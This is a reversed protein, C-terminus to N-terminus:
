SPGIVVFLNTSNGVEISFIANEEFALTLTVFLFCEFVFEKLRLDAEVHVTKHLLEVEADEVRIQLQLFLFNSVDNPDGFTHCLLVFGLYIIVNWDELRELCEINHM